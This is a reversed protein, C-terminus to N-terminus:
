IVPELAVIGVGQRFFETMQAAAGAGNPIANVGLATMGLGLLSRHDYIGAGQYAAKVGTGLLVTAM